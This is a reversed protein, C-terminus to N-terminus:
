KDKRNRKSKGNENSGKGRGDKGNAGDQKGGNENGKGRRSDAGAMAAIREATRDVARLADAKRPEDAANIEYGDVLHRDLGDRVSDLVNQAPKYRSGSVHRDVTEVRNLLSTRKGDPAPRFAHDPISRITEALSESLPNVSGTVTRDEGPVPMEVLIETAEAPMPLTASMRGPIVEGSTSEKGDVHLSTTKVQYEEVVTGDPARMSVTNEGEAPLYVENEGWLMQADTEVSDGDVSSTISVAGDYLIVGANETPTFENEILAQYTVSDIWRFENKSDEDVYSMTSQVGPMIIARKESIEVKTSLFTDRIHANDLSDDSERQALEDDYNGDGLVREVFGVGLFRHTVEHPVTATDETTVLVATSPDHPARGKRDPPFIDTYEPPVVCVVADLGDFYDISIDQRIKGEEVGYTTVIEDRSGDIQAMVTNAAFSLDNGTVKGAPLYEGDIQCVNVRTTPFSRQLEEAANHVHNEYKSASSFEYGIQENELGIFGVDLSPMQVVDRDEILDAVEVSGNESAVSDQVFRVSFSERDITIPFVLADDVKELLHQNDALVQLFSEEVATQVTSRDLTFAEVVTDRGPKAHTTKAREIEIEVEEPLKDLNEGELDFALMSLKDWVLDAEPYSGDIADDTVQDSTGSQEIRSNEVAQVVRMNTVDLRAGEEPPADESPYIKVPKSLDLSVQEPTDADGSLLKWEDIGSHSLPMFNIEFEEDLGGRFAGGATEDGSWEWRPTTTPGDQEGHSTTGVDQALPVPLHRDFDSPDDKVVWEGSDNVRRVSLDDIWLYTNAHDVNGCHDSPKLVFRITADAPADARVTVTGSNREGEGGASRVDEGEVVEYQIPDGTADELRWGPMEWWEDAATEWSFSIELTGADNDLSRSAEARNCRYVRCQLRGDSTTVDADSTTETSWDALGDEFEESFLEEGAQGIPLGNFSFTVSGGDTDNPRDHQIVLSRGETGDYFFLNSTNEREIGTSTNSHRVEEDYGYFEEVSEERSFPEVVHRKGDQEVVVRDSVRNAALEGDSSAAQGGGAVVLPSAAVAELFRRRDIPGPGDFRGDDTM